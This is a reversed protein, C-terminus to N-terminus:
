SYGRYANPANGVLSVMLGLMQTAAYNASFYCFCFRFPGELHGQEIVQEQVAGPPVTQKGPLRTLGWAINSCWFLLRGVRRCAGCPACGTWLHM